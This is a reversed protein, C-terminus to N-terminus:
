QEPGPDELELLELAGSANVWACRVQLEKCISLIASLLEEGGSVQALIRRSRNSQVVLRAM